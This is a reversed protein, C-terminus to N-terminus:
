PLGKLYSYTIITSYTAVVFGIPWWDKCFYYATTFAKYKNEEYYKAEEGCRDKDYRCSSAYKYDIKGSVLDIDGFTACEMKDAIFHRCNICLKKPTLLTSNAIHLTTFLRGIKM